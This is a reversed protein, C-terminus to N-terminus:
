DFKRRKLALNLPVDRDNANDEVYTLDGNDAKVFSLVAKSSLNPQVSSYDNNKFVEANSLFAKFNM